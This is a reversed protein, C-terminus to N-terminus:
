DFLIKLILFLYIFSITVSATNYDCSGEAEIPLGDRKLRLQALPHWRLIFVYKHLIFHLDFVLQETFSTITLQQCAAMRKWPFLNSSQPIVSGRCVECFNFILEEFVAIYSSVITFEAVSPIERSHLSVM